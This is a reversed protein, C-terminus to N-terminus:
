RLISSLMDSAIQEWKPMNLKMPDELYKSKRGDNHFLVRRTGDRRVGEHQYSAYEINFVVYTGEADEGTHGSGSLDSERFPVEMRAYVLLTDAMESLMRKEMKDLDKSLQDLKKQYDSDDIEFSTSM